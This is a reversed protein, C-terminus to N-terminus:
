SSQTIVSASSIYFGANSSNKSTNGSSRGSNGGSRTRSNEISTMGSVVGIKLAGYRIAGMSSASSFFCNCSYESLPNILCLTEGQPAGTNNTFFFSPLLLHANVITLQVLDGDLVFIKQGPNIVQEILKISSLHERLQVETRSIMLQLHLLLVNRFHGKPSTITM